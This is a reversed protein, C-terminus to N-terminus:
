DAVVIGTPGDAGGIIATDAPVEQAAIADKEAAASDTDDTEAYTTLRVEGTLVGTDGLAAILATCNSSLQLSFSSNRSKADSDDTFGTCYFTLDNVYTERRWKGSNFQNVGLRGADMDELLAAYLTRAADGDLELQASDYNGDQSYVHTVYSFSGGTIHIADADAGDPLLSARQVTGERALAALLAAASDHRQLDEERYYIRYSRSVVSGNKLSYDLSFYTYDDGSEGGQREYAELRALMEPKEAILARHLALFKEVTAADRLRGSCYNEGGISFSLSEVTDAAPVRHEVGTVDMSVGVGFAVLAATLVV